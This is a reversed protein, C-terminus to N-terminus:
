VTGVRRYQGMQAANDIQTRYVELLNVVENHLRDYEAADVDLYRGHAIRNRADRLREVVTKEKLEFPGYDLGLMAVIERLQQASLNSKTTVVGNWLLKAKEDIKEVFYEAVENFVAVKSSERASHLKAKIALALFNGRMERHTMRQQAVFHLYAAGADKVFGEWHAYLLAVGVRRLVVNQHERGRDVLFRFTILEKKRWVLESELRASLQSATKVKM